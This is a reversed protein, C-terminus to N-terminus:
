CDIESIVFAHRFSRCQNCFRTTSLIQSQMSWIISARFEIPTTGFFHREVFWVSPSYFIRIVNVISKIKWVDKMASIASCVFPRFPLVLIVQIHDHLIVGYNIPVQIIIELCKHIGAICILRWWLSIWNYAKGIIHWIHLKKDFEFSFNTKTM